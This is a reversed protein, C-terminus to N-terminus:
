DQPPISVTQTPPPFRWEGDKGTFHRTLSITLGGGFPTDVDYRYVAANAPSLWYDLRVRRILEIRDTVHLVALWATRQTGRGIGYELLAFDCGNADRVMRVAGPGDDSAYYAHVPKALGAVTIFAADTAARDSWSAMVCRHVACEPATRVFAHPVAGAAPVWLLIIACLAARTSLM